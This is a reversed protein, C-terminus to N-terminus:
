IVLIDFLHALVSHSHDLTSLSHKTNEEMRRPTGKIAGLCSPAMSLLGLLCKKGETSQRVPCDPAGGSVTRHPDREKNPSASRQRRPATPVGSVTRHVGSLGTGGELRQSPWTTRASRAASRQGPRGNARDVTPEGSLGTCVLCDPSNYGYATLEKWLAALKGSGAQRVPCQGTCWRVTRHVWVASVKASSLWREELEIKGTELV